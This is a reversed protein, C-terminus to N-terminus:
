YSGLEPEGYRRRAALTGRLDPKTAGFIPTATGGALIDAGAFGTVGDTGAFGRVGDAGAFDRAGNIFLVGSFVAASILDLADETTAVGVLVGTDDTTRDVGVIVLIGEDDTDADICVTGADDKAAVCAASVCATLESAAAGVEVAAAADDDAAAGVCGEYGIAGPAGGAYPGGPGQPPIGIYHTWKRSEGSKTHEHNKKVAAVASGWLNDDIVALLLVLLLHLLLLLLRCLLFRSLLVPPANCRGPTTMEVCIRPRQHILQFCTSM